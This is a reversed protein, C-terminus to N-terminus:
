FNANSIASIFFSWLHSLQWIEKERPVIANPLAAKRFCWTVKVNIQVSILRLSQSCYIYTHTLAYCKFDKMFHTWRFTLISLLQVFNTLFSFVCNLFHIFLFMCFSMPLEKYWWKASILNIIHCVLVSSSIYLSLLHQAFFCFCNTRENAVINIDDDIDNDDNGNDEDDDDDVPIRPPM